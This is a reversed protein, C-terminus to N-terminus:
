KGGDAVVGNVNELRQNEAARTEEGRQMTGDYEQSDGGFTWGSLVM